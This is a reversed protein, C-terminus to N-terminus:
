GGSRLLVSAPAEGAEIALEAKSTGREWRATATGSGLPLSMETQLPEKGYREVLLTRLLAGTADRVELEASRVREPAEIELLVRRGSQLELTERREEGESLRVGLDVACRPHYRRQGDQSFPRPEVRLVYEGAPVRPFVLDDGEAKAMWRARQADDHLLVFVQERAAPDAIAVRLEAGPGLLLTGADLDEGALEIRRTLEACGAAQVRLSYFGPPLPPSLFASEQATWTLTTAGGREAVLRVKPEVSLARGSVDLLRGRLHALRRADVPVDFLQESSSARVDEVAFSAFLENAGPATFHLTYGHELVGGITFRGEADSTTPPPNSQQRPDRALVKWGSAFAGSADRLRGRIEPAVRLVANWEITEGPNAHRIQELMAFSSASARVRLEGPQIGRLEYLGEADSQAGVIQFTEDPFVRPLAFMRAGVIPAGSEDSVKGRVVAPALLTLEIFGEGNGEIQAAKWLPAFGEARAGAWLEARAVGELTFRGDPGSAGHVWLAREYRTSPEKSGGPGRLKAFVQAGVPSGSADRVIGRLVGGGRQLVLQIEEEAAPEDNGRLKRAASPEHGPASAGLSADVDRREIEFRGQEDSTGREDFRTGDASGVVLRARPVAAGNEDMTRGCWRRAIGTEERRLEPAEVAPPTSPANEAAAPTEGPARRPALAEQSREENSEARSELAPASHEADRGEVLFIWTLITAIVGLAAAALWVARERKM